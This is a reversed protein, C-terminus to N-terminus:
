LNTSISQHIKEDGTWAMLSFIVERLDPRLTEHKKLFVNFRRKAEHMIKQDGLKGLVVIVMGRLLTDTHKEDKKPDWGLNKLFNLLINSHTNKLKLHLIKM